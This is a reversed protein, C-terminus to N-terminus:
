YPVFIKYAQRKKVSTMRFRDWFKLQFHTNSSIFLLANQHSLLVGLALLLKRTHLKSYQVHSSEPELDFLLLVKIATVQATLRAAM